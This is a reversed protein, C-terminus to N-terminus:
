LFKFSYVTIGDRKYKLIQKSKAIHFTDSIRDMLVSVDANHDIELGQTAFNGWPLCHRVIIRM